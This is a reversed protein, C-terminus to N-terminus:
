APGSTDQPALQPLQLLQCCLLGARADRVCCGQRAFISGRVEAKKCDRFWFLPDFEAFAAPKLSYTGPQQVTPPKYIAVEELIQLPPLAAFM